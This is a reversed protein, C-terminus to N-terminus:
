EAYNSSNESDFLLITFFLFPITVSLMFFKNNVTFVQCILFNVSLM